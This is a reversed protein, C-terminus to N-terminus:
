DKGDRRWTYVIAGSISLILALNALWMSATPERGGNMLAYRRVVEAAAACAVWGMAALSIGTILALPSPANKRTVRWYLCGCLLPVIFETLGFPALALLTRSFFTPGSLPMGDDVAESFSMWLFLAEFPLLVAILLGLIRLSTIM